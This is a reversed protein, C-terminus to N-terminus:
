VIHGSYIDKLSIRPTIMLSLTLPANRAEFRPQMKYCTGQNLTKLAEVHYTVHVGFISVSNMGLKFKTQHVFFDHSAIIFFDRNLQYSLKDFVEELSQNHFQTEYLHWNSHLGINKAISRKFVDTTCITMTPFELKSSQEFRSAITTSGKIFDNLQDYMYFWVFPILLGVYFVVRKVLKTIKSYKLQKKTSKSM